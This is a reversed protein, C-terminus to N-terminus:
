IKKLYEQAKLHNPIIEICKRFLQKACLLDHRIFCIEGLHFYAGGALQREGNNSGTVKEFWLYSENYNKMRKYLSAVRYMDIGKKNEKQLLTRLGRKFYFLEKEKQGLKSEVVALYSYYKEKAAADNALALAQKIYRRGKTYEFNKIYLKGIFYFEHAITKLQVRKKERLMKKLNIFAAKMLENKKEGIRRNRYRCFGKIEKTVYESQFYSPKIFSRYANVNKRFMGKNSQNYKRHKDKFDRYKKNNKEEVGDRACCNTFDIKAGRGAPLHIGINEDEMYVNSLGVLETRVGYDGDAEGYLGYEECWYGLIKETRKPILICASGINLHKLRLSFGKIVQVPYSVPEFNYGIVGIFPIADIIEVMKMLWDKKQLVIDNDIKLYYEANPECHWALNSAKTVGINKNLLILNKIIGKKQLTKLYDRTGDRSNNDVVTIVYPFRTNLLLGKIAQKTFELRNYTLMCMNVYKHKSVNTRYYYGTPPKRDVPPMTRAYRRHIIKREKERVIPNANMVGTPNHLYLGLFKRIHKMPYHQALRCWFEYDGGVKFSEDFYGIKEHISKRWVPQPGMHCGSLMIRPSYDPKISYGTRIHNYFDMNEYGTIFFDAYVLAIAPNKKLETTMIEFADPRLRDDTNANTIYMGSAAQIGRNWAQYVSERRKTRIYKINSHSKMFERV